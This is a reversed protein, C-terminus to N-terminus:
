IVSNCQGPFPRPMYLLETIAWLLPVYQGTLMWAWNVIFSMRNVPQHRDCCNHSDLTHAPAQTTISYMRKNVRDDAKYLLVPNGKSDAKQIIFHYHYKAFHIEELSCADVFANLPGKGATTGQFLPFIGPTSFWGSLNNKLVTKWIFKLSM